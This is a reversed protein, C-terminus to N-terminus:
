CNHRVPKTAGQCTPDEWVPILGTDKANTPTAALWQVVLSARSFKKIVPNTVNLQIIFLYLDTVKLKLHIVIM